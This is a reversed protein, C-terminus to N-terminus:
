STLHTKLLNIQKKISFDYIFDGHKIVVGGLLEPEENVTVKAPEIQWSRAIKKILERSVPRAAQVRLGEPSERKKAEAEIERIVSKLLYIKNANKLFSLFNDLLAALEKGSKDQTVQGLVLALKKAQSSM